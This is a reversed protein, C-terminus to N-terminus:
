ADFKGRCQRVLSELAFYYANCVVLINEGPFEELNREISVNAAPFRIREGDIDMEVFFKGASGGIHAPIEGTPSKAIARTVRPLYEGPITLGDVKVSSTTQLPGLKQTRIRVANTGKLLAAEEKSPALSDFWTRWGGVDAYETGMVWTVSRAASVFASLLFDFKREKGYNRKLQDLFFKAEDLKLQTLHGRASMGSASSCPCRHSDM